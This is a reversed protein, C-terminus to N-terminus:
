EDGGPSPTDGGGAVISITFWASGGNVDDVDKYVSVTEGAALNLGTFSVQTATKTTPLQLVNSGHKIRPESGALSTGNLVVSTLPATVTASGSAVSQSVGNLVATNSFSPTGPTVPDPNVSSGDDPNQAGGTGANNLYLESELDLTSGQYSATVADWLGMLDSGIAAESIVLEANSRYWTGDAGKRSVIVAAAVTTGQEGHAFQVKSNTSDFALYSITGNNRWNPLNIAGDAIFASSMAAGSGDSNRPDLIIRNKHVIYEDNEKAVTILTLQDGRKLNLAQCVGEYTNAYAPFEGTYLGFQDQGMSVPVKPLQGQALIVRGPVWKTSGVPQFNYFQSLSQGAAQLEAARERKNRMNLQRFRNACQAGNTYGEFSHDCIDKFKTYDKGVQATIVRQVTQADTKPNKPTVIERAVTKGNARYYTKNGVKGEAGYMEQTM